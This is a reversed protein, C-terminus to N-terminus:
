AGLEGVMSIMLRQQLCVFGVSLVAEELVTAIGYVVCLCVRKGMAMMCNFSSPVRLFCYLLFYFLPIFSMEFCFFEKGGGNNGVGKIYSQFSFSPPPVNIGQEEAKPHLPDWLLPLM